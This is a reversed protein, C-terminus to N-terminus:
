FGLCESLKDIRMSEDRWMELCLGIDLCKIECSDCGRNFCLRMMIAILNLCLIM